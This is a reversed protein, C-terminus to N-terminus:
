IKEVLKVRKQNPHVDGVFESTITSQYDPSVAGCHYLAFEKAQKKDNAKIEFECEFTYVVKVKYNKM